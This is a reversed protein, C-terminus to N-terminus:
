LIPLPMRAKLVDLPAWPLICLKKAVRKHLLCIPLQQLRM